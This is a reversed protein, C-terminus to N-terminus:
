GVRDKGGIKKEKRWMQRRRKNRMIYEGRREWMGGDRRGKGM